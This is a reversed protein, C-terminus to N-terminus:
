IENYEKAGERLRKAIPDYSRRHIPTIGFLDLGSQHDKTGYGANTAFGFGPYKEQYQQMLLDRNVKAIVSAAMVAPYISDAKPICRTGPVNPPVVGDLIIDVAEGQPVLLLVTQIAETHAAVLAPRIGIRDITTNDVVRLSCPLERLQTYVTLLPPEEGKKRYKTKLQKSDGLGKPGKWNSPVLVACVVLPGSWAGLGTEDAGLIYPM